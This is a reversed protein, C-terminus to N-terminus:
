NKDNYFEEMVEKILPSKYSIIPRRTTEKSIPKFGKLEPNIIHIPSFSGDENFFRTTRCSNAVTNFYEIIDDYLDEYGGLNLWRQGFELFVHSQLDEMFQGERSYKDSKSRNEGDYIKDKLILKGIQTNPAINFEQLISPYLRAYDFDDLNDFLMVPIGNIKMKPIDSILIPDAVFAGPFKVLPKENRRNNNNGIIYGQNYFEIMGRNALYVTQRHCKSYRTCNALCKNFVYDIDGVKTEICKQVITDVINYMVFTKYDLYPLKSIETTIHSYDLKKAGAIVGGIYNLSFSTYASQGKRRSAFQIMQDLYVSYSSVKCFDGREAFENKHMEDVFYECVKRNFDPHCIIDVPNYGLQKIRAIIYPMDFAMNWALVFDPKITNILIFLDQILKIEDQEDYFYMYFKFDSVGMRKAQKYGGVTKNILGQLEKFFSNDVSQEFEKILPNKDNRLLLTYVENKNDDILTIANIPAEGPEPFDGVINIIDAEIDFYAKTVPVNRNQYMQSFRFRYHDEIHMDSNFVDVHEHLIKNKRKDGNKVNDFYYQLNGTREAIDKELEILPVEIEVADSKKIFLENYGKTIGEKAMYYIYTPDEIETMVKQGTVNDKAVLTLAGRDWKGTSLNKRPYHYLTNLITLDSGQIYGPIM